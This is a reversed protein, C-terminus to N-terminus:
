HIIVSANRRETFYLFIWQVFVIYRNRFSILYAVHIFSWMLWAFLGSFLFRGTFAVAKAKGITAMSGKDFYKFARRKEKVIEKAIIKAVFKGEQIAVQAVGPLTKGEE